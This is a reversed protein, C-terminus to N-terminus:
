GRTRLTCLWWPVAFRAPASSPNSPGPGLALPRDSGTLRHPPYPPLTHHLRGAGNSCLRPVRQHATQIGNSVAEFM